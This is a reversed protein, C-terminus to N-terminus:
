LNNLSCYMSGSAGNGTVVMCDIEGQVEAARETDSEVLVIDQGELALRDALYSGVAGAGVIVIRM